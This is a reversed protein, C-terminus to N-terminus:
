SSDAAIPASTIQCALACAPPAAIIIARLRTFRRLVRPVLYRRAYGDLDGVAALLRVIRERPDRHRLAARLRSGLSARMLARARLRRHFGIPSADRPPPGPRAPPRAIEVARVFILVGVLRCLWELSFLHHRQRFRRRDPRGKPALTFLAVWVLM